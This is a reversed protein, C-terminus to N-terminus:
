YISICNNQINIKFGIISSFKSILKLCNTTTSKKPNEVNVIMNNSFLTMFLILHNSPMVSKWLDPLSSCIYHILAYLNFRSFHYLHDIQLAFISVCIYLMLWLLCFTSVVWTDILPYIYIFFTTNYTHIYIYVYIFIYTHIYIYTYIYLPINNLRLLSPFGLM